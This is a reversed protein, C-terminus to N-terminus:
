IGNSENIPKEVLHASCVGEIRQCDFPKIGKFADRVENEDKMLVPNFVSTSVQFDKNLGRKLINLSGNVDANLLRGTKSKFLGRKVRRGVYSDHHRIEENDLFSCKSTHSENLVVVEIGIEDAKYYLMKIFNDFPIQVFNQNNRKGINANQKWGDNHGIFVTGIDNKVFWEVLRRSAKHFYDDIKMKRKLCFKQLKQGTKIHQKSYLCDLEAVKKNFFQNISKVCRGNVILPRVGPNDSTATALNDVGIDLAASHIKRNTKKAFKVFETEPKEYVVEIKFHGTKPVVRVERFPGVFAVSKIRTKKDLKLWHKKKDFSCNQNTFKLVNMGSKEKYSPLKPRGTFKSKNKKYSKLSSFFGKWSKFVQKVVQQSCQAKLARYDVQDLKVLRSILDFESIFKEDHILDKYEEINEPHGSFANRVIYNVYNYLNKSKHCLDAMLVFDKKSKDKTLIYTQVRTAM